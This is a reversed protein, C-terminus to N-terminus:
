LRVPGGQLCVTRVGNGKKRALANGLASELLFVAEVSKLVRRLRCRMGGVDETLTALIGIEEKM